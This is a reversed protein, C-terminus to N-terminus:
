QLSEFLTNMEEASVAKYDAPLEFTADDIDEKKVTKATFKMELGFKKM